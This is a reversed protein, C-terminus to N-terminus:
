ARGAIRRAQAESVMEGRPWQLYPRLTIRDVESLPERLAPLGSFGLFRCHAPTAAPHLALRPSCGLSAAKAFGAVGRHAQQWGPGCPSPRAPGCEDNGHEGPTWGPQARRRSQPGALGERV